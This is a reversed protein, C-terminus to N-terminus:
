EKDFFATLKKFMEVIKFKVVFNQPNEIIDRQSETMGSLLDESERDAENEKDAAEGSSQGKKAEGEAPKGEAFDRNSPKGSIQNSKGDISPEPTKEQAAPLCMAPYVMCWWNKGAGEGIVVRLTRYKGAPLSFDEYDRTDFYMDTVEVRLDDRSDNKDLVEQAAAEISELHMCVAANAELFDEAEEYVAASETLVADRVKYKLAQDADSDSNAIVHLRIVENSIEECSAFFPLMSFIVTIVFGAALARLIDKKCTNEAFFRWVAIGAKKM